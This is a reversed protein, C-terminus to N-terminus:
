ATRERRGGVGRGGLAEEIRHSARLWAFLRLALVVLLVGAAAVTAGTQRGIAAVPEGAHTALLAAAFLGATAAAALTMERPCERHLCWAVRLETLGRLAAWAAVVVLLALAHMAPWALAVLGGGLGGAGDVGLLWAHRDSALAALLGLAGDFVAFAGFALALTGVSLRPRALVLSGFAAGGLGRLLVAWWTRTLVGYM